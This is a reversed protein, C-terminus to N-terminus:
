AVREIKYMGEAAYSDSIQLSTGHGLRKRTMATQCLELQVHFLDVPDHALRVPELRGQRRTRRAAPIGSPESTQWRDAIPHVARDRAGHGSRSEVSPVRASLSRDSERASRELEARLSEPMFLSVHSTKSVM